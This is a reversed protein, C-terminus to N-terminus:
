AVGASFQGLGLPHGDVGAVIHGDPRAELTVHGVLRASLTAPGAAQGRKTGPARM